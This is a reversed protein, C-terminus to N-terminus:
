KDGKPPKIESAVQKCESALSLVLGVSLRETGETLKSKGNSLTVFIKFAKRQTEIDHQLLEDRDVYHQKTINM